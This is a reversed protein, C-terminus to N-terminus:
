PQTVLLISLDLISEPNIVLVVSLAPKLMKVIIYYEYELLSIFYSERLWSDELSYM